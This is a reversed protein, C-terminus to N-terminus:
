VIRIQRTVTIVVQFLRLLVFRHINLRLQSGARIECVVATWLPQGVHGLPAHRHSPKTLSGGTLNCWLRRSSSPPANPPRSLAILPGITSWLGEVTRKTAKRLLAQTQRSRQGRWHPRGCTSRVAGAGPPQRARRRRGTPSIAAMGSSWTAALHEKLM